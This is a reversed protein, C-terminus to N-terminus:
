GQLRRIERTDLTNYSQYIKIVLSLAMATICAGIVISTLTLAMPIPDVFWTGPLIEGDAYIPATGRNTAGISVILLNSGYDVISMGMVIKFLNHKMIMCFLGLVILFFAVIYNLTM